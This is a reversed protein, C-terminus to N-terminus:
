ITITLSTKLLCVQKTQKQCEQVVQNRTKEGKNAAALTVKHNADHWQGYFSVAMIIRIQVLCGARLLM